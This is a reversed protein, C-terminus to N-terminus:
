IDVCLAPTVFLHLLKTTPDGGFHANITGHWLVNFGSGYEAVGNILEVNLKM